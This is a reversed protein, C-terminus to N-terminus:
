YSFYFICYFDDHFSFVSGFIGRGIDAQNIRFYIETSISVLIMSLILKSIMSKAKMRGGPSVSVFILYIGTVVIAITYIPVLIKIFGDTMPKVDYPDPNAEIMGKLAGLVIAMGTSVAKALWQVIDWALDQLSEKIGASVTWIGSIVFLLVFVLIIKKRM